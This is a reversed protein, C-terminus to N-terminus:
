RRQYLYVVVAALILMGAITGYMVNRSNKLQKVISEYDSVLNSYDDVVDDYSTILEEYDSSLSDYEEELEDKQSVIFDYESLVSAHSSSLDNFSVLLENYEEVQDDYDGQMSVYQSILQNYATTLNQVNSELREIKGGITDYDIMYFETTAILVNDVYLEINWEGPYSSPPHGSVEIFDYVPLLPFTGSLTTISNSRYRDEDPKYWDFKVVHSSTVDTFNVWCYVYGSDTLVVNGIGIPDETSPNVDDCILITDFTYAQVHVSSILYALSLIVLLVFRLGNKTKM